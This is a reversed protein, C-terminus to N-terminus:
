NQSTYSATKKYKYRLYEYYDMLDDIAEPPMTTLDENLHPRVAEDLVGDGAVLYEMSVGFFKALRYTTKLDPERRDHEYQSYAQSSLQLLEAVERQKLNRRERLDVLRSGFSNQYSVM